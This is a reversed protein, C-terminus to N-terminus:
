VVRLLGYPGRERAETLVFNPTWPSVGHLFLRGQRIGLDLRISASARLAALFVSNRRAVVVAHAAHGRLATLITGPLRVANEANVPTGFTTAMGELGQASAVLLNPTTPSSGDRLFRISPAEPPRDETATFELRDVHLRLPGGEAGAALARGVMVRLGSRVLEPPAIPVLRDRVEEPSESAHPIVLVHGGKSLVFAAIPMTLLDGAEVSVSEDMELLTLRGFALRGFSAAFEGSGPWLHDPMTDPEPDPRGPRLLTYPKAPLISEFKGGELTYPYIPNEVRIGRLKSITLWRQLREEGMERRAVLVGNVLYDLATQEERELIFVVHAPSQAMRRLLLREIEARDPSGHGNAASGLYQEILADWSDIVVLARRGPDLRSWADQVPPPLWLFSTAERGEASEAGILHERSREIMKAAERITETQLSTDVIQISRGGNGLWPFERVLEGESVRSTILLVRDGKFAELLALGFTTKGSGPPGRVLLTQPGPLDLFERVEPPLRVAVSM